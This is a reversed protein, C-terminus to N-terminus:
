EEATDVLILRLDMVNTGTSGTYMADDLQELASAADHDRLRQYLDVNSARARSVTSSDVIGGAIETPGDTGDTGIALASIRPWDEIEIGFRLVFEQNPGGSGADEALTVTTEGGSVLICPPEVPRGYRVTEKAIGAHVVGVEASEGELMTSLILASYDLETAREYAAECVDNADALIVTQSPHDDLTAPTPTKLDSNNIGRQLYTRISAPTESWLSHETLVRKADRFTTDDPVTPGWPDGAVEDVIVLTVTTAPQILETLQGGKIKSVHKRVTNIEAIPLGAHLLLETLQALDDISVGNPPNSLQASTGGTICAFVLDDAGASRAIEAIRNGAHVSDDDPIPHGAEFVEIDDRPKGQGKKEVVIAKTVRDPLRETVATVVDLSGKGAGIVYIDDISALDYTTDQVRIQDGQTTLVDPVTTDPHVSELAHEAITLLTERANGDGHATLETQNQIM